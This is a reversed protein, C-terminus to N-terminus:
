GRGYEEAAFARWIELTKAPDEGTREAQRAAAHAIYENRTAPDSMSIVRRGPQGPRPAPPTPRAKNPAPEHDMM